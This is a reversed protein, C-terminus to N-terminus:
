MMPVGAYALFEIGPVLFAAVGASGSTVRIAL